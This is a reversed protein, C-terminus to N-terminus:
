QRTDVRTHSYPPPMQDSLGLAWDSQQTDRVWAVEARLRSMEAAMADYEARLSSVWEASGIRAELSAIRSASAQERAQLRAQRPTIVTSPTLNNEASSPRRAVDESSSESSHNRSDVIPEFEVNGSIAEEGLPLKQDPTFLQRVHSNSANISAYKLTFPSPEQENAQTRTSRDVHGENRLRRRRRRLFLIFLITSILFAL